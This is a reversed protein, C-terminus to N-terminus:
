KTYEVVIEYNFNTYSAGVVFAPEGGNCNFVCHNDSGNMSSPNWYVPPIVYTGSFLSGYVNVLRTFGAINAPNSLLTKRTTSSITGLNGTLVRRYIIKGDIWRRGTSQEATTYDPVPSTEDTTYVSKNLTNNRIPM